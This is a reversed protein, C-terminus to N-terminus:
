PGMVGLKPPRRGYRINRKGSKNIMSIPNRSSKQSERIFTEDVQIIGTLKPMLLSALAHPLEMRWLWVTKYNIEACGYEKELVNIMDPLSYSNIIMELVKIWIDWHCRTRELITGSFVTFQVSCSKCCYM